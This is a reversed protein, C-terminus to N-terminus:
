FQLLLDGIDGRLSEFIVPNSDGEGRLDLGLQRLLIFTQVSEPLSDLIKRPLVAPATAERPPQHDQGAARVGRVTEHGRYLLLDVLQDTLGVGPCLPVHVSGPLGRLVRHLCAYVTVIGAALCLRCHTLDVTGSLLQPILDPVLGSVELVAQFISCLTTWLVKFAGKQPCGRISGVSTRPQTM